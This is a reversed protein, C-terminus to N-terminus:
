FRHRATQDGPLIPQRGQLHTTFRKKDPDPPPNGQDLRYSLHFLQHQDLHHTELHFRHVDLSGRMPRLPPPKGSHTIPRYRPQSENVIKWIRRLSSALTCQELAYVLVHVTEVGEFSDQQGDGGSESIALHTPLRGSPSERKVSV